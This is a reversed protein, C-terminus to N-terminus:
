SRVRFHSFVIQSTQMLLVVASSLGFVVLFFSFWNSFKVGVWLLVFIALNHVFFLPYSNISLFNLFGELGLIKFINKKSIFYLVLTSFIGYSIHYINPPYKNYFQTLNHGLNSVLSRSWLFVLFGVVAAIALKEWKKQNDIFFITFYITISWPLWMIVRYDWNRVYLYYISSALSVLFYLYYLFSSRKKFFYIIPFIFMLQFFILVLWNLDLGGVFFVNKFIYDFDIKKTYLFYRLPFLLLLFYFYPLYLRVLRKKVYNVINKISFIFDRSYFLYSSCFLFTVVSWESFDWILFAFRDKLFYATAHAIIMALM